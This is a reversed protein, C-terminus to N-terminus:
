KAEGMEELRWIIEYYCRQTWISIPEIGCEGGEANARICDRMVNILHEKTPTVRYIEKLTGVLIGDERFYPRPQAETEAVASGGRSNTINMNQYFLGAEGRLGSDQQVGDGCPNGIAFLRSM